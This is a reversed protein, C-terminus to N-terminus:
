ATEASTRRIADAVVAAMEGSRAYVQRQQAAGTGRALVAAALERVTDLDGADALAAETHQILAGVVATAPALSRSQPHLLEGTLGHRGARWTAARLLDTRWADPARGAAWDRAATEVLARVLAAILITDRADLCVDAIRIEVTPYSRSLRADFYIMGLDMAAGSQILLDVAEDYGAANSFVESPGATPWRLSMQSRYSSYRTDRGQMFPSNASLALLVPLWGRIRDIAAVGEDRSDVNVHVHCGCILHEWETPGFFEGMRVYRTKPTTHPHNPMPSTALAAVQAGAAAAAVEVRRRAEIVASHLDALSTCPATDAEIQEQKLEAEVTGGPGDEGDPRSHRLVAAAVARPHGTDPDVLLLEEEVGLLRPSM